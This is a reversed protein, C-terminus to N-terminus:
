PRKWPYGRRYELESAADGVVAFFRLDADRGSRVLDRPLEFVFGSRNLRPDGLKRGIDRREVSTAGAYALRGKAFVLVSDPLLGTDVQAAWGGFRVSDREVYWDELRGRVADATVPIEPGEPSVIVSAGGRYELRLSPIDSTGGLPTLAFSGGQREVRLIEVDNAGNVLRSDDFFASFRVQGQLPYTRTVAAIRGNVAVALEVPVGPRSGSLHGAVHSPVLESELDVNVLLAAGEIEAQVDASREGALPGVARGVLERNPGVAYVWAPDGSGFLEVKRTAAERLRRVFSGFDLTVASGQRERVNVDAEPRAPAFVSQGDAHWPLRTGLVDAITPVVDITHVASDDIRARREGPRKVLLPVSAVDEINGATVGRRREGARFSVGHDATVIILSRDYLGTQQLRDLLQGLLRDVFGVQLLHREYGQTVLWPDKTWTDSDLGDIGLSDGYQHGSPLFRWPSHPLLVHLFYLTPRPSGDISDLFRGFQFRQDQWLERGVAHDVDHADAVPIGNVSGREEPQVTSDDGFGQWSQNVPPLRSRLGDPLSVHGYVVALDSFLSDMRAGFGPHDRPCLDDPCLHTVPEFARLRYSKGLLTFLNDPHDALVPLLGEEPLKGTLISPVAETTHEHITTANRFWTGDGALRAFAPYRVADIKWRGDMLTTSPFEDFVVVVVPTTAVIPPGSHARAEEGLAIRTVPSDLLFLTAFLVPAVALVTLLSQALRVRAYVVAAVLGVAFAALITATDGADVLRRVTQLAVLSVLLAVFALHVARRPGEGAFGVLAEVALLALPPGLVLAATVLFVDLRTSGRVVFFEPNQGLLDFLPQAVALASLAALHLGDVALGRGRSRRALPRADVDRAADM